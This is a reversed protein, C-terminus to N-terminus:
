GHSRRANFLSAAGKRLWHFLITSIAYISVSVIAFLFYHIPLIYRYETHFISQVSLYYAPVILLFALTRWQKCATLLAMGIVILILMRETKFLDKQVRRILGRLLTAWRYPTAGIELLESKGLNVAAQPAGDGLVVLRIADANNTAFPIRVIAKEEETERLPLAAFSIDRHANTILLIVPEHQLKAEIQLVYDTNKKVPISPSAFLEGTTTENSKIELMSTEGNLSVATDQLAKGEAYLNAAEGSWVVSHNANTQPDHGFPAQTLIVPAGATDSPWGWQWNDNYRLMSVARRPM